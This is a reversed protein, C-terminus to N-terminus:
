YDPILVVFQSGKGLTSKVYIKGRHADVIWKAISLGLGSGDINRSRAKDLRFFREFIREQFEPSIGPGNDEVIIRAYKVGGASTKDVKVTVVGGFPTYKIGNDVLIYLLQHIREMDGTIEIPEPMILSIDIKKYEAPTRLVQLVPTAILDFSFSERTLTANDADARALALLQTILRKIRYFEEKVDTIVEKSFASLKNEEDMEIAEISTLLVTLPARLEHSADAVFRKQKEISEEIPTIVRGALLHGLLAALLIFLLDVLILIMVIRVLVRSYATVDRGVYVAGIVNGEYSIPRATLLVTAISGNPLTISTFRTIKGPNWNTIEALVAERLVPVPQDVKILQNNTDLIYYFVQGTIDYDDQIPREEPPLNPQKYHYIVVGRQERAVQRALLQIEEVRENYISLLGGAGVIISFIFLFGGFVTAYLTTLNKRLKATM